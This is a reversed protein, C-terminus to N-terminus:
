APSSARSARYASIAFALLLAALLAAGIETWATGLTHMAWVAYADLTAHALVALVYWGIRRRAVAYLVMVSMGIHASVASVRELAGVLASTWPTAFYAREASEITAAGGHGAALAPFYYLLLMSALAVGSLTGLIMSEVGGHGAGFQLGTAVDLSRKRAIWKFALYRATEECLGASLGAAVALAPLPLLGLARPTGLLGLAWNLPLHVIQSAVFALAGMGWVWMPVRLRRVIWVGLLVPGICMIPMAVLLTVIVLAWGVRVPTPKVVRARASSGQRPAGSAIQFSRLEFVSGSGTNRYRVLKHPAAAAYWVDQALPGLELRAHWTSIMGAPVTIEERGLVRVIIVASSATSPVVDTYRGAYGDKFPLGRLVELSAENDLADAPLPLTHTETKGHDPTTTIEVGTGGYKTEVRKGDFHKTASVPRLKGDLRVEGHSANAPLDTAYELRWGTGDAHWTWRATGVVTGSRDRVDYLSTDGDKWSPALTVSTPATGCGVLLACAIALLALRKM